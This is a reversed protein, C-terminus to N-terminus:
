TRKKRKFILIKNRWIITIFCLHSSTTMVCPGHTWRLRLDRTGKDDVHASKTIKTNRLKTKHNVVISCLYFRIYLLLIVIWKGIKSVGSARGKEWLVKKNIKGGRSREDWSFFAATVLLADSACVTRVQRHTSCFTSFTRLLKLLFTHPKAREGRLHLGTRPLGCLRSPDRRLSQIQSWVGRTPTADACYNSPARAIFVVFLRLVPFGPRWVSVVNVAVFVPNYKGGEEDRRRPNKKKKGRVEDIKKVCRLGADRGSASKVPFIHIM